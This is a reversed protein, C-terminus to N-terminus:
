LCIHYIIHVKTLAQYQYQNDHQQKFHKLLASHHQELAACVSLRFLPTVEVVVCGKGCQCQLSKLLIEVIDTSTDDGMISM